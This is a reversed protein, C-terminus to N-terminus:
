MVWHNSLKKVKLKKYNIDAYSSFYVDQVKGTNKMEKGIELYKKLLKLSTKKNTGHWMVEQLIYADKIWLSPTKIACLVGTNDEAILIFGTGALISNLQLVVKDKSDEQNCKLFDCNEKHTKGFDRILDCINDIDFKNAYRIM